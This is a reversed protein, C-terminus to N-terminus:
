SKGVDQVILNEVYEGFNPRATIKHLKEIVRSHIDVRLLVPYQRYRRNSRKWMPGGTRVTKKGEHSASREHVAAPPPEFEDMDVNFKNPKAM